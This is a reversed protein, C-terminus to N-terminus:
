ERQRHIIRQSPVLARVCPRMNTPILQDFALGSSAEGRGTTKTVGLWVFVRGNLWRARQYSLTVLKCGVNAPNPRNRPWSQATSRSPCRSIAKRALRLYDFGIASPPWVGFAGANEQM